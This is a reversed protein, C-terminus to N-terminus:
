KRSWKHFDKDLKKQYSQIKCWLDVHYLTIAIVIVILIILVTTTKM